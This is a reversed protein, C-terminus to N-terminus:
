WGVHGPPVWNDQRDLDVMNTPGQLSIILLRAWAGHGLDKLLCKRLDASLASQEADDINPFILLLYRLSEFQALSKTFEPSLWPKEITTKHVIISLNISSRRTLAPYLHRRTCIAMAEMAECFLSINDESIGLLSFSLDYGDEYYLSQSELHISIERLVQLAEGPRHFAPFMTIPRTGYIGFDITFIAPWSSTTHRHHKRQYLEQLKKWVLQLDIDYTHLGLFRLQPQSALIEELDYYYDLHLTHLKFYSGRIVNSIKGESRDLKADTRIRLDTLNPMARLAGSLEALIPPIVSYDDYAEGGLEIYFTTVMSANRTNKSLTYLLPATEKVASNWPSKSPGEWIARDRQRPSFDIHSYLMNEAADRLSSHVRAVVALDNLSCFQLIQLQIEFAVDGPHIRRSSSTKSAEQWSPGCNAQRKGQNSGKRPGLKTKSAPSNTNLFPTKNSPTSSLSQAPSTFAGALKAVKKSHPQGALHEDKSRENMRRNCTMCAWSGTSQKAPSARPKTIITPM